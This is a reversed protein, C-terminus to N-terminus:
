GASRRESLTRGPPAAAGEGPVPRRGAPPSSRPHSTWRLPDHRVEVRPRGDPDQVGVVEGDRGGPDTDAEDVDLAESAGAGVDDGHDRAVPEVPEVSGREPRARDGHGEPGHRVQAREGPDAGPHQDRGRREVPGTRGPVRGHGGDDRVGGGDARVHEGDADVVRDAQLVQAGGADAQPRADVDVLPEPAPVPEM